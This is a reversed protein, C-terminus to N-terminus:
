DNSEDETPECVECGPHDPDRCDPNQGLRELTRRQRNVMRRLEEIEFEDAPRM